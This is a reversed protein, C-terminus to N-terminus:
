NIQATVLGVEENVDTEYDRADLVWATILALVITLGIILRKHTM